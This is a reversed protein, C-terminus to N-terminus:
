EGNICETTVSAETLPCHLCGLLRIHSTGTLVNGSPVKESSPAFINLASSRPRTTRFCAVIDNTLTDNFSQDNFIAYITINKSFYFTFLKQM